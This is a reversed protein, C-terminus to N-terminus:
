AVRGKKRTPTARTATITHDCEGGFVGVACLFFAIRQIIRLSLRSLRYVGDGECGVNRRRLIQSNGQEYLVVFAVDKHKRLNIRLFAGAIAHM